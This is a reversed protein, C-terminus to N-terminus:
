VGSIRALLQILNFCNLIVFGNSFPLKATKGAQKMEILDKPTIEFERLVKKFGREVHIIDVDWCGSETYRFHFLLAPLIKADLQENMRVIIKKARLWGLPYTATPLTEIAMDMAELKKKENKRKKELLQLKLKTNQDVAKNKAIPPLQAAESVEIAVTVEKIRSELINTYEAKINDIEQRGKMVQDLYDKHEKRAQIAEEIFDILESEHRNNQRLKDLLKKAKEIRDILGYDPTRTAGQSLAKQLEEFEYKMNLFEISRIPDKLDLFLAELDRFPYQDDISPGLNPRYPKVYRTILNKKQAANALLRPIAAESERCFCADPFVELFRHMITFNHPLDMKECIKMIWQPWESVIDPVKVNKQGAEKLAKEKARKAEMDVPM